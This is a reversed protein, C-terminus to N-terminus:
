NAVKETFSLSNPDSRFYTDITKYAADGM